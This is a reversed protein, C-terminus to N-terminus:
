PDSQSVRAVNTVKKKPTAIFGHVGEGDAYFGIIQGRKNIGLAVTEFADPFDISTFVGNKYIYGHIRVEDDQYIGVIHRRDNIGLASTNSAGPFSVDITTFENGNDIFGHLGNTDEYFGVIDGVSNIGTASTAFAEPVDISTFLGNDYVFGHQENSSSNDLYEGVIQGRNNIGNARTLFVGASPVDISTFVNKKSRYIFGHQGQSLYSGVIQGHNNIGFAITDSGDPFDITTFGIGNYVFGHNPGFLEDAYAKVVQGRNNIGEAVTFVANPVDIPDFVYSAARGATSVSLLLGLTLLVRVLCRRM